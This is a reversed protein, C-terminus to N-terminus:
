VLVFLDQQHSVTENCVPVDPVLPTQNHQQKLARTQLSKLIGSQIKALGEPTWKPCKGKLTVALHAANSSFLELNEPRNDLVDGNIHHVVESDTLSRGLKEEMVYRHLLQYQLRGKKDRPWDLRAIQVYGKMMKWGGQWSGHLHMPVACKTHMTVGNRILWRRLHEKECKTGIGYLNSLEALSKGSNYESITKDKMQHWFYKTVKNDGM